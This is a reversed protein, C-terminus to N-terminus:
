IAVSPWDALKDQHQVRVTWPIVPGGQEQPIYMLFSPGGPPPLRLFQSLLIHNLGTPSLGSISQAPSALCCCYIISPDKQWLRCWLIVVFRCSNLSFKLSFSFNIMPGSPPRVGPCVPPSVM